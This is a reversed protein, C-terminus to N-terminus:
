SLYYLLLVWKHKVFYIFCRQKIGMKNVPYESIVDKTFKDNCIKKINKLSCIISLKSKREQKICMRLYVFFQRKARLYCEDSNNKFFDFVFNYLYKIKDFRDSKYKNTLSANNYRYIYNSNSTICVKKAYKYYYMDFIMDETIFERESPFKIEYKKIISLNYLANWVSPRMSDKKNPLSGLLHPFFCTLVDAGSYVKEDYREVFLIKGDDTVREFGGIVTDSGTILVKKVLEEITNKKLFDDSDVFTVFKGTAIKLGSNRALGLGENSKHITIINNYTKTYKDCIVPSNDKSGDDVLIIEINKYTQNVISDICANLYKEVNFIPVIVSVKYENTM